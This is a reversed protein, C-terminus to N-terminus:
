HREVIAGVKDLIFVRLKEAGDASLGDIKLDGGAGGATFIKLNAIDFRRDLPTSDKEVHQIRNFPIATVTRWFVGSKFVIDKDRLAYGMRPISLFPWGFLPTAIVPLMLWVWAFQIDVGDSQTAKTAITTFAAIAIGVFFLGIVAMVLKERLLKPDLSCWFVDEVAPLEDLDIEENAFM